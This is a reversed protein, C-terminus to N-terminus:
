GTARWSTRDLVAAALAAAALAAEANKRKATEEALQRRLEEHSAVLALSDVYPRWSHHADGQIAQRIRLIEAASLVEAM